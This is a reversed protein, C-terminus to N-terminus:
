SSHHVAHYNMRMLRMGLDHWAAMIMRHEATSPDGHGDAATGGMRGAHLEDLRTILSIVAERLRILAERAPELGSAFHGSLTDGDFAECVALIRSQLSELRHLRDENSDKLANFEAAREEHRGRLDALLGPDQLAGEM